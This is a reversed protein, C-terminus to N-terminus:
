RHLRCPGHWLQFIRRDGRAPFVRAPLNKKLYAELSIVSEPKLKFLDEGKDEFGPTHTM